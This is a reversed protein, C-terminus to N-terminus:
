FSDCRRHRKATDVRKERSRMENASSSGDSHRSLSDGTDDDARHRREFAHLRELIDRTVSINSPRGAAYSRVRRHRLAPRALRTDASTDQSSLRGLLDDLEAARQKAETSQELGQIIHELRQQPTHEGNGNSFVTEEFALPTHLRTTPTHENSTAASAAQFNVAHDIVNNRLMSYRRFLSELTYELKMRNNKEELLEKHAQTVEVRAEANIKERAAEIDREMDERVEAAVQEDHRERTQCGVICEDEDCVCRARCSHWRESRRVWAALLALAATGVVGIAAAVLDDSSM